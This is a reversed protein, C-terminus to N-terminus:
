CSFVMPELMKEIQGQYQWTHSVEQGPKTPLNKLLRYLTPICTAGGFVKSKIDKRHYKM